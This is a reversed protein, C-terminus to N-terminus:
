RVHITPISPTPASTFTWWRRPGPRCRTALACDISGQTAPNLCALPLLCAAVPSPVLVHVCRPFLVVNDGTTGLNSHMVNRNPSYVQFRMILVWGVNWKFIQNTNHQPLRARAMKFPLSCVVPSQCSSSPFAAKTVLLKNCLASLCPSPRVTFDVDRIGGSIVQYQVVVTSGQDLPHYFCEERGPPVEWKLGQVGVAVLTTSLLCCCLFVALDCPCRSQM